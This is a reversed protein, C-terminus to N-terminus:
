ARHQQVVETAAAQFGPLHQAFQPLQTRIRWQSLHTGIKCSRVALVHLRASRGGPMPWDISDGVRLGLLASGVPALISVKEGGGDADRPYVLTLEHEQERQDGDVVKVLATTNMTILDAPLATPERLEARELEERLAATNMSRYQPSDLLAEIREVDLRSLLLNPRKTTTNM